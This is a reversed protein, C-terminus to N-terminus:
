AAAHEAAEPLELERCVAALQEATGADLSRGLANSRYLVRRMMWDHRTTFVFRFLRNPRRDVLGRIRSRVEPFEVAVSFLRQLNILRDSDRQSFRFPSPDFYSYGLRDFNGDFHGHEVAWRSLETGPYPQLITAAAHDVGCAVNLALTRLADDLTEGPIGLMNFSLVRVGHAKLRRCGALIDANRVNRGLVERRARESGCEIGLGVATCGAEVLLRVVRDTAREPRLKCFFPMGIRRRYVAGFAELWRLDAAFNADLFWVLQMGWRERVSAIEDVVREPDTVRVLRGFPRYRENLTRNYCYSCRYPCGRTALFVKIPLKRYHPDDYFLDYAAPALTDLDRVPSRLPGREVPGTGASRRIWFGAPPGHPFDRAYADLYEPFSEEGEGLCVADLPEHEIVKPFFTAHPGGLVICREPFARRLERAWGVYVRHLGTTASLALVDARAVRPDTCLEHADRGYVLNVVHGARRLAAALSMLGYALPEAARLSLFAVRM